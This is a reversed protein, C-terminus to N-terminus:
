QTVNWILLKYRYYTLIRKAYTHTHFFALFVGRYVFYTVQGQLIGILSNLQVRRSALYECFKPEMQCVSYM